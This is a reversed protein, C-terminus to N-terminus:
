DQQLWDFSWDTWDRERLISKEWPRIKLCLYPLLRLTFVPKFVPLGLVAGHLVRFFLIEIAAKEKGAVIAHEHVTMGFCFEKIAQVFDSKNVQWEGNGVRFM